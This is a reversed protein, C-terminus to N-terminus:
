ACITGAKEFWDMLVRDAEWDLDMMCTGCICLGTIRQERLLWEAVNIHRQMLDGPLPRDNGFDFVYLCLIMPKGGTMVALRLLADPVTDIQDAHWLPVLYQDFYPLLGPLQPRDLSM